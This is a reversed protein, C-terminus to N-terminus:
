LGSAEAAIQIIAFAAFATGALLLACGVALPAFRRLYDTPAQNAPDSIARNKRYRAVLVTGVVLMIAAAAGTELWKM